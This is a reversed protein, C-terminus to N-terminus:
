VCLFYVRHIHLFFHSVEADKARPTLHSVYELVVQVVHIECRLPKLVILKGQLKQRANVSHARPKEGHFCFSNLREFENQFLRENAGNVRLQREQRKIVRQKFYYFVCDVLAKVADFVCLEKKVRAYLVQSKPV